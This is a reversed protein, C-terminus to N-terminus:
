ENLSDPVEETLLESRVKSRVISAIACRVQQSGKPKVSDKGANVVEPVRESSAPDSSEDCRSHQVNDANILVALKYLLISSDIAM